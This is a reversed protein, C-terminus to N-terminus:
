KHNLIRLFIQKKKSVLLTDNTEFYKSLQYYSKLLSVFFTETSILTSIPLLIFNKEKMCHAIKIIIMELLRCVKWLLVSHSNKGVRMRNGEQVSFAFM